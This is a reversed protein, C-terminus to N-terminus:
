GKGRKPKGQKKAKGKKSKVCRPKGSKKVSHKGKPCPKSASEVVNGPGQYGVSAPTRDTPPANTGQCAEGQCPPIPAPSAFGGGARADYLDVLGPDQSVLSESTTFFVDRGDSGADIFESDQPSEGSSILSLCGSAAKVYLTAGLGECAGRSSAAEWEYVDQAGNTDSPLLADFSEFFLHSGDQSLARSAHHQTEAGPIKAAVWFPFQRAVNRGQPRAGSPNCSICHLDGEGGDALADYLFVEADAEGSNVDTNDYSTLAVTSMFAVHVGDATVRAIHFGPKINDASASDVMSSDQSGLTAVLRVGVGRERLYLNPEGEVAGAALDDSSTFYIRTANESAGVVGGVGDAILVPSSDLTEGEETIETEFLTEGTQYVVLSGAPNATWFVSDPGALELTCAKGAEDCAGTGSPEALPNVRMYIEGPQFNKGGGPPPTKNSSATSTSWFVRSGDDSVANHVSDNRFDAIGNAATGLSAHTPAAEGEPLLSVLRLSGTESTEYLQFLKGSNADPTLQANARIFSNAGGATFGQIEPFYTSSIPEAEQSFGPPPVPTLLEFPPQGCNRQRYLNPVGEPAGEVLIRDSDQFVWSSCLDETFAKIPIEQGLDANLPVGGRPANIARSSWGEGERRGAIYQSSWPASEPAGFARTTSYTVAEGEPTAQDIRSLAEKQYPGFYLGDLVAIDGGNKDIPSVMEYARCDSLRAGAGVRFPANSCAPSPSPPLLTTFTSELGGEFSAEGAGEGDPDIGYVPGGGSSQAVFRFHYTQGPALGTLVTGATTVSEDVVEDTLLTGPSLPQTLCGGKNCEGPGYEVYYRTDAWFRPNVVARVVASDTAASTTYQDLIEPPVQPPDGFGSINPPPSYARVYSNSSSSNAVYLGVAGSTTATNAAIGGAEDFGDSFAYDAIAACNSSYKRIKVESGFPDKVGDAVYLNGSADTTLARPDKVAGPGETQCLKQGASNLKFVNEKGIRAVFLNGAPDFAISRVNAGVLLGEPDPFVDKFAGSPSFTQIREKDGVYVDGSSAIAINASPGGLASFEGSGAGTTGAQCIDGSAATCLNQQQPSGGGEVQTKNVKGGFMLVFEGGPDFKQIRRNSLDYVYVNGDTDRGIGQPANMQGSGGGSVGAKCIDTPNTEQDCIEFEDSGTEDPGSAVVDWGWAKIFEGWATLEVVRANEQDSILLRGTSPNAAIGRPTRCQGAASGTKCGSWLTKPAAMANSPSFSAAMSFLLLLATAIVGQYKGQGKM